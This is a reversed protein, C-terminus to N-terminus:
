ATRADLLKLSHYKRVAARLNEIRELYEKRPTCPMEYAGAVKIAAKLIELEEESM